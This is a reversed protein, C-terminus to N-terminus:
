AGARRIDVIASMGPRVEGGLDDLRIQVGVQPTPRMRMERTKPLYDLPMEFDTALGIRELRGKFRSGPLAPFSVSVDSGVALQAFSEEPVWAEIWTDDTLWLSLLPTGTSVAMGPQVLRRVVAGDAPALVRTSAIDAAIRDLEALSEERRAKLVRLEGEQLAVENEALSAAQLESRKSAMAADAAAALSARVAAKAAADRIVEASVAGGSGLASRAAHFAESDEAQVRAAEAEAQTQRYESQARVLKVRAQKRALDLAAEEVAIQLELTALTAEIQAREALLHADDLRALLDGKKVRDGAAVFVEAVVGEGRVGLESLYSRVLANSTVVHGQQYQWWIGAIALAGLLLLSGAIPLFLRRAPPSPAPACPVNDPEASAPV